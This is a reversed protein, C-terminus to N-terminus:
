AVWPYSISSSSVSTAAKLALKKSYLLAKGGGGGESGQHNDKAILLFPSHTQSSKYKPPSYLLKNQKQKKAQKIKTQNNKNIKQEQKVFM